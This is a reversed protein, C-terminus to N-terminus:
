WAFATTHSGTHSLVCRGGSGGGGGGAGGGGGGGGDGDVGDGDGGDDRGLAAAAAANVPLSAGGGDGGGGGGGGDLYDFRRRAHDIAAPYDRRRAALLHRAADARPARPTAETLANLRAEVAEPPEWGDNAHFRRTLAALHAAM